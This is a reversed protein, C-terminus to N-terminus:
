KVSVAADGECRRCADDSPMGLDRVVDGVGFEQRQFVRHVRDRQGRSFQAYGDPNRVGQRM